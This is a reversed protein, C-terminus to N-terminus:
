VAQLVTVVVESVCQGDHAAPSLMIATNECGGGSEFPDPVMIYELTITGRSPESSASRASAWAYSTAPANFMGISSTSAKSTRGGATCLLAGHHREVLHQGFCPMPRLTVKGIDLSPQSRRGGPSTPLTARSARALWRPDRWRLHRHTPPSTWGRALRVRASPMSYRSRCPAECRAWFGTSMMRAVGASGGAATTSVTSAGRSPESKASIDRSWATLRATVM